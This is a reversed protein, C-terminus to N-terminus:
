IFSDHLTTTLQLNLLGYKRCDIRHMGTLNMHVEIGINVISVKNGFFSIEYSFNHILGYLLFKGFYLLFSDM